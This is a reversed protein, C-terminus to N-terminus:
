RSPMRADLSITPDQVANRSGRQWFALVEGVSRPVAECARQIVNVSLNPLWEKMLLGSSDLLTPALKDSIYTLMQEYCPEDQFPRMDKVLDIMREIFSQTLDSNALKNRECVCLLFQRLDDVSEEEEDSIIRHLFASLATNGDVDKLSFDIHEDILILAADFQRTLLTAHLMTKATMPCVLRSLAHKIQAPMQPVAVLFRAAFIFSTLERRFSEHSLIFLAEELLGKDVAIFIPHSEWFEAGMSEVHSMSLMCRRFSAGYELLLRVVDFRAQKAASAMLHYASKQQMTVKVYPVLAGAKLLMEVMPLPVEPLNCVRELASHHNSDKVNIDDCCAMAQRALAWDGAEIASFFSQDVKKLTQERTHKSYSQFLKMADADGKRLAGEFPCDKLANLVRKKSDAFVLLTLIALCHERNEGTLSDYFAQLTDTFVDQDFETLEQAFLYAAIHVVLESGGHEDYVQRLTVKESNFERCEAIRDVGGYRSYYHFLLGLVFRNTITNNGSFRPPCAKYCDILHLVSINAAQLGGEQRQLWAREEPTPTMAHEQFQKEYLHHFLPCVMPIAVPMNAMSFIIEWLEDPLRQVPLDSRRM